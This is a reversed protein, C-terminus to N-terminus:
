RFRSQAPCSQGRGPMKEQIETKKSAMRLIPLMEAGTLSVISMIYM